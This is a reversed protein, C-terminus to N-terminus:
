IFYGVAHVYNIQNNFTGRLEHVAEINILRIVNDFM